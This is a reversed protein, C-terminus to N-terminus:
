HYRVSAIPQRALQTTSGHEGPAENSFAPRNMTQVTQLRESAVKAAPVNMSAAPVNGAWAAGIEHVVHVDPLACALVPDAVPV